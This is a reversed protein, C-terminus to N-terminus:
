LGGDGFPPPALVWVLPVGEAVRHTAVFARRNMVFFVGDKGVLLMDDPTAVVVDGDFSVVCLEAPNSMFAFVDNEWGWVVEAPLGSVGSREFLALLVSVDWGKVVGVHPAFWTM